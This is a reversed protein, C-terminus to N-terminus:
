LLLPLIAKRRRPYDPFEQRYWRHYALARPVLNAATWLAFAAGPLSWTLLTWGSWELVEGFYNPCSVWRFLGGYPISYERRATARLSRLLMDSQVTIALGVALVSTGAVFRVDALWAAPYPWAFSFLYRAQLYTNIAHFCVAASVVSIPVGQASRKLFPYLFGRYAYHVNWILLFAVHAADRNTGLLFLLTFFVAAPSEMLLWALRPPVLPGWGPRVFRGYPATRLLLAFLAAVSLAFWAVLLAIWFQYEGV